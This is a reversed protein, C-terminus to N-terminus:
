LLMVKCPAFPDTVCAAEGALRVTLTPVTVSVPDNDGELAVTPTVFAYRTPFAVGPAVTVLVTSVQGSPVIWPGYEAVAFPEPAYLMPGYM